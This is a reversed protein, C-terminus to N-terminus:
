AIVEPLIIKRSEMKDWSKGVAVDVDVILGAPCLKPHALRPIPKVMEAYVTPLAEEVYADPCLFYLADHYPLVFQYKELLGRDDLRIQVDRFNCHAHNAPKFAYIDELDSGNKREWYSGKGHCRWCQYNHGPMDDCYVCSHRRYAYISHFWRISNYKSILWGSGNKGGNQYAEEVQSDRWRKNGEYLHDLTDVIRCPHGCWKNPHHLCAERDFYEPYREMMGPGQMGFGYGLNAQKASTNRILTYKGKIHACREKLEEVGLTPDIPERVLYSALFSHADGVKVAIKYYVEDGSEAALTAGHYSKFDMEIFTHGPPAIIMSRFKEALKKNHKPPNLANPSESALQKTATSDLFVPHVFGDPQPRWGDVRGVTPPDASAGVYTSILKEFKRYSVVATYLPDKTEKALKELEKYATTQRRIGDAGKAVPVKHRRLKMYPILQEKSPKFPLVKVWRHEETIAQKYAKKGACKPCLDSYVKKPKKLPKGKASVTVTLFCDCAVKKEIKLGKFLRYEMERWIGFDEDFWKYIDGVDGCCGWHEIKGDKVKPPRIYGKEPDLGKLAQPYLAQMSEAVKVLEAQLETRVEQRRGEHVPIGRESVRQIIPDYRRVYHLYSEWLGKARLQGILTPVIYQLADVDCIGYYRLNVKLMNKWRRPYGYLSAVYELGMKSSIGLGEESDECTLDPQFHRFAWMSDHVEGGIECLWPDIVTWWFGDACYRRRTLIPIDHRWGNHFWFQVRLALIARIIPEFEPTADFFIGTGKELSFQVSSLRVTCKDKDYANEIDCTIIADPGLKLARNYFEWGQEVTPNELFATAIPNWGARAINIAYQIDYKLVALLKSERYIHAPNYTPLVLGYTTDVPYGRLKDINNGFGSLGTLTRTPIDGMALIVKQKYGPGQDPIGRLLIDDRHAGCHEIAKYEYPSGKLEKDPILCQITNLILFQDRQVGIQRLIREFISGAAAQPRLPLGDIAEHSGPREAICIVGNYGTGEPAVFGRGRLELPCGICEQPKNLAPVIIMEGM